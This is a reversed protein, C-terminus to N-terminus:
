NDLINQRAGNSVTPKIMLSPLPSLSTGRFGQWDRLRLRGTGAKACRDQATELKCGLGCM